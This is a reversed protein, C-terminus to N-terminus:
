CINASGDVKGASFTFLPPERIRSQRTQSSPLAISTYDAKGPWNLCHFIDRGDWFGKKLCNTGSGKELM